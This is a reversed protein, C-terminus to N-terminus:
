NCATLFVRNLLYCKNLDIKQFVWSVNELYVTYYLVTYFCSNFHGIYSALNNETQLSYVQHGAPVLHSGAYSILQWQNGAFCVTITLGIHLM